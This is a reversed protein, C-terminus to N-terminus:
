NDIVHVPTRHKNNGHKMFFYTNITVTIITKIFIIQLYFGAPPMRSLNVRRRRRHARPPSPAPSAPPRSARAQKARHYYSDYPQVRALPKRHIERWRVDEFMQGIVELRIRIGPLLPYVNDM